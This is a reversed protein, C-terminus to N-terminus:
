EVYGTRESICLSRVVVLFSFLLLRVNRLNAKQTANLVLKYGPHRPLMELILVTAKTLEVFSEALNGEEARIRSNRRCQNSFRLWHKLNKTPDYLGDRARRELEELSPIDSYGLVDGGYLIAQGDADSRFGGEEDICDKIILQGSFSTVLRELPASVREVKQPRNISIQGVIPVLTLTMEEDTAGVQGLCRLYATLEQDSSLSIEERNRDTYHLEIVVDSPIRFTQRLKAELEEWTPTTAFTIRRSRAGNKIIKFDVDSM